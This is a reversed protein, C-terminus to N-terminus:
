PRHLRAFRSDLDAHLDNTDLRLRLDICVQGEIAQLSQRADHFIDIPVTRSALAKMERHGALEGVGDETALLQEEKSM